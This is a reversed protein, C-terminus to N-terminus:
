VSCLFNMQQLENNSYSDEKELTEDSNSKSEKKKM